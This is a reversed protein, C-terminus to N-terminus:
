RSRIARRQACLGFARAAGDATTEQLGTDVRLRGDCCRKLAAARTAISSTHTPTVGCARGPQPRLPEAEPRDQEEDAPCEGDDIQPQTGGHDGVSRADARLTACAFDATRHPTRKADVQQQRGDRSRAIAAVGSTSAM